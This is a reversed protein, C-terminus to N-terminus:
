KFFSYDFSNGCTCDRGEFQGNNFWHNFAANVNDFGFAEQIDINLMILISFSRKKIRNDITKRRIIKKKWLQMEVPTSPNSLEIINKKGLLVRLGFLRSVM